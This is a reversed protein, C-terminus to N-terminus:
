KGMEINYLKAYYENMTDLIDVGIKRIENNDFMLTFVYDEGYVDVLYKIALVSAVYGDFVGKRKFIIDNSVESNGNIKENFDDFYCSNKRYFNFLSRWDEDNYYAVEGSLYQALGEDFWTIRDDGYYYHRYFNHFCEQAVCSIKKYFLKTGFLPVKDICLFSANESEKFWGRSYEPISEINRQKCADKRFEELDSFIVVKSKILKDKKFLRRFLEFKELTNEIIPKSIIEISEDIYFEFEENEYVKKM